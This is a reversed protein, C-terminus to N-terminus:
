AEDDKIEFGKKFAADAFLRKIQDVVKVKTAWGKCGICCFSVAAGEVNITTDKNLAKGTKPCGKQKAQKTAVLQHNARAAFKETDKKFAGPCGPCCFYVKGGKYAVSADEKVAKKSVPCKIGKLPDKEDEAHAFKALIVVALSLLMISFFIGFRKMTKIGKMPTFFLGLSNLGHFRFFGGPM